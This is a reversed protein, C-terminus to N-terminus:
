SLGRHLCKQEKLCMCHILATFICYKQSFSYEVDDVYRSLYCLSSHYQRHTCCLLVNGHRREQTCHPLDWCHLHLRHQLGHHLWVERDNGTGSCCVSPSLLSILYKCPNTSTELNQLIVFSNYLALWNWMCHTWPVM